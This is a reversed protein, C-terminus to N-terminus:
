EVLEGTSPDLGLGLLDGLVVSRDYTRAEKLSIELSEDKAKAVVELFLWAEMVGEGSTVVEIVAGEDWAQQCRKLARKEAPTYNITGEKM